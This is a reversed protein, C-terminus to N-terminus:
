KLFSKRHIKSPGFKKLTQYHLKTGYGKHKGFGYGPYKKDMKEMLKDRHVKAMISALSIALIKEDGKIITTLTYASAMPSKLFRPPIKLGGDLLIKLNTTSLKYNTTLKQFARGSALNAANSINIKDIMKPSASFIAFPIVSQKVFEAWKERQKATLKKSDKLPIKSKKQFHLILFKLNVTAAVAAVTVPGALPGRGVEDIGIIYKIKKASIKKM